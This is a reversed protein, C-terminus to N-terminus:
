LFEKCHWHLTFRYTAYIGMLIVLVAPLKYTFNSVGFLKFSFSSLWFLLPPKDLYDLGRQFVQLYSGNELMEWSIAAYQSADAEMVDPFMNLFYVIGLAGFCFIYRYQYLLSEWDKDKM